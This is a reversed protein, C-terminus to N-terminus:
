SAYRQEEQEEREERQRILAISNAISLTIDGTHELAQPPKGYGRDLVSNAATVRAADSESTRMVQVLTALAEPTYEKALARLEANAKTRAGVPRGSGDRKGGHYSM